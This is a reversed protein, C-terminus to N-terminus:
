TMGYTSPSLRQAIPQGALLLQGHVVRELDAALHGVRQAVRVRVTDDVAVDLGLVDQELTPCATTASKPIARATSRRAALLRVPVPSRGRCAPTCSGPAPPRSCLVEVAPGVEVRQRAHQVLHQGPLRREGPGVTSLRTCWCRDTAGGGMVLMRGATGACTAAVSCRANAFVGASRNLGTASNASASPGPGRVAVSTAAGAAGAERPRRRQRATASSPTAAITTIAPATATPRRIRGSAALKRLTM